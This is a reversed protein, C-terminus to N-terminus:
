LYIYIFIQKCNHEFPMKPRLKDFCCLIRELSRMTIFQFSVFQHTTIGKGNDCERCEEKALTPPPPPSNTIVRTCTWLNGPHHLARQAEIWCMNRFFLLMKILLSKVQFQTNTVASIRPSSVSVSRM